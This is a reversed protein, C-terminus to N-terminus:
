LSDTSQQTGSIGSETVSSDPTDSPVALEETGATFTIPAEAASVPFDPVPITRDISEGSGPFRYLLTLLITIACCLVAFMIMGVTSEFLAGPLIIDLLLGSANVIGHLMISAWVSRMRYGVYGLLLCFM